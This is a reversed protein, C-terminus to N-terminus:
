ITAQDFLHRVARGSITTRQLLEQAVSQVAQANGPDDLLYETKDLMRRQLRALQRENGARNQLIRKVALLDQAAGSHCYQGTFRAEAVMGALLILVDDEVADKSAKSRGKKMECIGLRMDGSQLKGPAITVKQVSRGLLIAMVAHGAEHVATAILQLKAADPAAAADKPAGVSEAGGIPSLPSDSEDYESPELSM